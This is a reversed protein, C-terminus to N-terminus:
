ARAIPALVADTARVLDAPALELDLGRRGGSVLVTDHLLVTEDIVTPHAKRQGLPSIGGVVYGTAREADAPAAMAASRGGAARALAKLDLRAAVPVIAVTLAGDVAAMLTKFVREPEVGLAAAAELGYSEARPDHEYPRATFAIGARTLAVTAPTGGPPRKRGM